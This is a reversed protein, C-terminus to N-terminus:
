KDLYKEYDRTFCEVGFNYAFRSVGCSKLMLVEQEKTPKLRIKVSKIM